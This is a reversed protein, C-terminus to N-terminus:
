SQSRMQARMKVQPRVEAEVLKSVRGDDCLQIHDGIGMYCSHLPENSM